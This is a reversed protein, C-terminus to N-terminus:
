GRFGTCYYLRRRKQKPDDESARALPEVSAYRRQLEREQEAQHWETGNSEFLMADSSRAAFGVVDRWNSLWACVSLLFVIDARSPLFDEILALPEKELDFVYFDLNTAGRAARIRNAANVMRSDYDIGVGWKIGDLAFLMGGQNSGIDLVTKGRFDIPVRALRARPDRQGQIRSGDIEITHYGAPYRRASYSSSSTKTYNLLNLLQRRSREEDDVAPEIPLREFVYPTRTRAGVQGIGLARASRKAVPGLVPTRKILTKLMM